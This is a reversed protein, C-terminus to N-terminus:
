FRRPLFKRNIRERTDWRAYAHGSSQRGILKINGVSLARQSAASRLLGSGVFTFVRLASSAFRVPSSSSHRGRPLLKPRFAGSARERRPLAENEFTAWRVLVGTGMRSDVASDIISDARDNTRRASRQRTGVRKGEETGSPLFLPFRFPLSGGTRERESDGYSERARM